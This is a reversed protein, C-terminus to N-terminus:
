RSVKVRTLGAGVLLMYIEKPVELLHCGIIIVAILLMYMMPIYAKGIRPKHVKGILPKIKGASNEDVEDGEVLPIYEGDANRNELAM